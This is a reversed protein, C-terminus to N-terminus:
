PPNEGKEREKGSQVGKGAMIAVNRYVLRWALTRVKVLVALVSIRKERNLVM